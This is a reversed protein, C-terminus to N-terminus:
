YWYIGGGNEQLIEFGNEQLLLGPQPPPTGGHRDLGKTYLAKFMTFWGVNGKFLNKIM